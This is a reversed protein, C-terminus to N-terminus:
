PDPRLVIITDDHPKRNGGGWTDALVGEKALQKCIDKVNTVRVAYAELVLPWLKDFRMRGCANKLEALIMEAAYRKNVEITEAVVAEQVDANFGAFFVAQQTQEERKRDKADARNRAHKRATPLETDRFAELGDRSKTAYVLYFHPRDKTSRYIPASVVHKFGCVNKLRERLLKLAALGPPMTPDLAERWGEGLMPNFSAVTSATAMATARNIHDYMFNILLEVKHRRCVPALKEPSYGKWGKPDIFIFPFSTGIFKDFVPIADEFQGNFTVIEFGDEPKNYTKVAETLRAFAEPNKEVLFCKVSRRRGRGDVTKAQADKLVEIAIMFSSDAFTETRCEWPGSFGDVYTIDSFTLVKFALAQLYRKLLYHKAETQERGLYPNDSM